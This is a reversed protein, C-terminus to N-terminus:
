FKYSRNYFEAWAKSILIIWIKAKANYNQQRVLKFLVKPNCIFVLNLQASIVCYMCKVLLSGLIIIKGPGLNHM